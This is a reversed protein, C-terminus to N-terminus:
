PATGLMALRTRVAEVRPSNPTEKLIRRYTEIAEAKHGAQEEVRALDLLLETFLFDAPSLGALATRFAEAAKAFNREAEWTYGIGAQALARLTASGSRALALEYAARAAAYQRADYRLTALQYGAEAAARASPYRALTSELSEIAAQRAEPSAQASAVRTMAEAYAGLGRRREADYWVWSGAGLLGLALVAAVVIVVTRRSRWTM